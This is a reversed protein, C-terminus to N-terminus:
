VRLGVRCSCCESVVNLILTGRKSAKPVSTSAAEGSPKLCEATVTFKVKTPRGARPPAAPPGVAWSRAADVAAVPLAKSKPNTPAVGLKVSGGRSTCEHAGKADVTPALVNLLGGRTATVSLLTAGGSISAATAGQVVPAVGAANKYANANPAKVALTVAHTHM